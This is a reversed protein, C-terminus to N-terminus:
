GPIGPLLWQQNRHIISPVIDFGLYRIAPESELFDSMWNFDGCPIDAIARFSTRNRTERLAAIAEAVWYSGRESGPGSVSQGQSWHRENAVREFRERLATNVDQM